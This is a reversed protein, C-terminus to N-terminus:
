FHPEAKRKTTLWRHPLEFDGPFAPHDRLSRQRGGRFQSCSIIERTRLLNRKWFFYIVLSVIFVSGVALITKFTKKSTPFNETVQLEFSADNSYGPSQFQCIYHGADSLQVQHIRLIVKGEALDDKLLETRGQFEPDQTEEVKDENPYSHVLTQNRFWKVTMKGADMKPSLHCPLLVDEGQKAQFIGVPGIVTFEGTPMETVQLDFNAESYFPGAHFYCTYHGADSLQVQCIKVTVKGEAMHERLMKTRGQFAPAQVEEVEQGRLYLHMVLPGRLWKVTMGRADMKPSLHCPLLVDQGVWALIPQDLPGSVTFTGPIVTTTADQTVTGFSLIGCILFILYLPLTPGNCAAPWPNWKTTWIM